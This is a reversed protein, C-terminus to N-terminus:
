EQDLQAKLKLIVSLEIGTNRVVFRPEAGDKLLNIAIEVREEERGEERGYEKIKEAATMFEGRITEPLKEIAALLPKAEDINGKILMYKLAMLVYQQEVDHKMDISHLWEIFGVMHPTIDRDWIHKLAGTMVGLLQQRKIEDDHTKNIEIIDVPKTFLEAMIKLPDDFCDTLCLSYPYPTQKGHYFVLAYVVPLKDKSQSKDRQKLHKYLLNFM